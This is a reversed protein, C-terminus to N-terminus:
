EVGLYTVVGTDVDISYNKAFEKQTLGLKEAVRQQVESLAGGRARIEERCGRDLAILDLLEKYKPKVQGETGTVEQKYKESTLRGEAYSVQWEAYLARYEWLLKGKLSKAPLPENPDEEIKKTAQASSKKVAKRKRSVKKKRAKVAKEEGKKRAAM